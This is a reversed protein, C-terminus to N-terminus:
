PKWVAFKVEMGPMALAKLKLNMGPLIWVGHKVEGSLFRVSSLKMVVSQLSGFM